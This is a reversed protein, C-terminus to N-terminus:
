LELQAFLYSYGITHRLSLSVGLLPKFGFGTQPGWGRRQEKLTRLGGPLDSDNGFIM